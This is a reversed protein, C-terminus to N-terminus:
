WDFLITLDIVRKKKAQRRQKKRAEEEARAKREAAETQAQDAPQTAPLHRLQRVRISVM